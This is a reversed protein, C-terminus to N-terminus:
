FFYGSRKRTKPALSLVTYRQYFKLGVFTELYNAFIVPYVAQDLLLVIGCLVGDVQGAIPHFARNEWAVFGAESPFMCALEATVLAVPLSWVLPIVCVGIICYLPALGGAMDETGYAGGCTMFMLVLVLGFFSLEKSEESLEGDGARPSPSPSHSRVSSMAVAVCATLFTM